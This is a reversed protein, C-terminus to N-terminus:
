SRPRELQNLAEPVDWVNYEWESSREGSHLAQRERELLQNLAADAEEISDAYGIPHWEGAKGEGHITRAVIVRISRPEAVEGGVRMLRM